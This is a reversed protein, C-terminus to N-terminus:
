GWLADALQEDVRERRGAKVSALPSGSSKWGWSKRLIKTVSAMM